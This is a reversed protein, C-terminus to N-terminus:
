GRIVKGAAQAEETAASVFHGMTVRAADETLALYGARLVANQIRGGPLDFRRGLEAFDVDPALPTRRPVLTRFVQGRLAADQEPFSIRYHIRRLVAPDLGGVLNTTLLVIGEYREVEQLLLNVEMNAYRDTASHTEAVRRGFLSDAEDFLLIAGTSRARKFIDAIRQETEGVWKSVVSPLNIRAVPVGLEAGIIEACLTKGTGPPGDFLAVIGLGTSLKQGFGWDTMLKLRNRCAGLLHKVRGMVDEPLVIDDLTRKAPMSLTYDDLSARLQTEAATLLTAMDILPNLPDRQLALHLAALVAQRVGGGSFHYRSALKPLDIDEGLPTDPPLHTEWLIEREQAGPVAFDLRYLVHRDVAPDLLQARNTTLIVPTRIREFLGLLATCVPGREALLMEADEVLLIAHELEAELQLADVMQTLHETTTLLESRARLVPRNFECGLARAFFTKGTGPPGSFLLVVGEGDGILPGNGFDGMATRATDGHSILTCVHAAQVRPLVVRDIPVGPALRECVEAVPGGLLADGMLFHVLRPSIEVEWHLMSPSSRAPHFAVLRRTRLTGHPALARRVEIQAGLDDAVLQLLLRLDVGDWWGGGRLERYVPLIGGDVHPALLAVLIRREVPTLGYRAVLTPLPLALGTAVAEVEAAHRGVDAAHWAPWDGDNLEGKAVRLRLEALARMGAVEAALADLLGRLKGPIVQLPASPLLAHQTLQAPQAVSRRPKEPKKRRFDHTEAM